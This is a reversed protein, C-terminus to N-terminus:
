LTPTKIKNQSSKLEEFNAFTKELISNIELYYKSISSKTKRHIISHTSELNLEQLLEEKKSTTLKGEIFENFIWPFNYSSIEKVLDIALPEKTIKNELYIVFSFPTNLFKEYLYNQGGRFIIEEYPFSNNKLYFSEMISFFKPNNEFYDYAGFESNHYRNANIESIFQTMVSKSTILKNCCPCPVYGTGDFPSNLRESSSCFDTVCCEPFGFYKGMFTWWKNKNFVNLMEDSLKYKDM